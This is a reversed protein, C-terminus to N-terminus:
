RVKFIRVSPQIEVDEQMGVNLKAFGQRCSDFACQSINKSKGNINSGPPFWFCCICFALPSGVLHTLTGQGLPAILLDWSKEGSDGTM